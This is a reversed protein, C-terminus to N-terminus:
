TRRRRCDLPNAHVSRLTELQNQRRNAAGAVDMEVTLPEPHLDVRALGPGPVLTLGAEHARHLLTWLSPGFGALPLHAESGFYTQRSAARYAM